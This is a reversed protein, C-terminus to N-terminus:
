KEAIPSALIKIYKVETIKKFKQTSIYDTLNSLSNKQSFIIELDENEKKFKTLKKEYNEILYVERTFSNVQFIYFALLFIISFSTIIWFIKLFIAVFLRPLPPNLILPYNVGNSIRM